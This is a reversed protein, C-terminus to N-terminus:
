YPPPMESFGAFRKKGSYYFFRNCYRNYSEEAVVTLFSVYPEVQTRDMPHSKNEDVVFIDFTIQEPNYIEAIIEYVQTPMFGLRRSLYPITLQEISSNRVPM